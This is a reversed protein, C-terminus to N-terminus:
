TTQVENSEDLANTNTTSRKINQNKSKAGRTTRLKGTGAGDEDSDEMDYKEEIIECGFQSEKTIM